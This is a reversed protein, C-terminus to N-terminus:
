QYGLARLQDDLATSDSEAKNNDPSYIGTDITEIKVWPVKRLAGIPRNRPHGWVGWEGFANGHDATIVATNADFNNLLLKVDSLVYRLNEIYSQWIEEHALHEPRGQDWIWTQDGSDDTQFGFGLPKPISPFHPQMYHLIYNEAVEERAANIGNDTVPRPPVTGKESDFHAQWVEDFYCFLNSSTIKNTNPNASIYATHELQERYDSSFNQKMWPESASAISRRTSIRDPLFEFETKITSLADPRCGDLIILLDWEEEFIPTGDFIPLNHIAGFTIKQSLKEMNDKIPSIYKM